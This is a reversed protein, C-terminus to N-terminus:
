SPVSNSKQEILFTIINKLDFRRSYPLCTIFSIDLMLLESRLKKLYIPVKIM